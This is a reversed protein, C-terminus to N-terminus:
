VLCAELCAGEITRLVGDGCTSLLGGIKEDTVDGHGTHGSNLQCNVEAFGLRFALHEEEGPLRRGCIQQFLGARLAVVEIQEGFRDVWDIQQCPQADLRRRPLTTQGVNHPWLAAIPDRQGVKKQGLGRRYGGHKRGKCSEVGRLFLTLPEVGAFFVKSTRVLEGQGAPEDARGHMFDVIAELSEGIQNVQGPGVGLRSRPAHFVEIIRIFLQASEPLDCASAETKDTEVDFWFLDIQHLQSDGSEAKVIM